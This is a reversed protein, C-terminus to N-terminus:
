TWRLGVVIECVLERGVKGVMRAMDESEGDDLATLREIWGRRKDGLQM